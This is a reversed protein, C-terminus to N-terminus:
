CSHLFHMGFLSFDILGIVGDGNYDMREDYPHPPWAAGFLSFDIIDVILDGNIDPSAVRVALYKDGLCSEDAIIFGQAVARLAEDSGGAAIPGSMTVVGNADSPADANSSMSGGCLILTNNWGILWYDQGPIGTVPTGVADYVAITITAGVDGLRDGDGQPCVLLVHSGDVTATSLCVDLICSYAPVSLWGVVPALLIVLAKRIM